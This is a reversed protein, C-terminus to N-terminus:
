VSFSVEIKERLSNETFQGTVVDVVNGDPDIFVTTPMGAGGFARFVEGNPDSALPYTVGTEAALREAAGKQDSQNVGLFQVDDKVDQFVKELDPMEAVCPPCWSAWFNMVLPKGEFQALTVTGGDFGEMEVAPAAAGLDAAGSVSVGGQSSRFLAFGVIGLAVLGIAGWQVRKLLAARRVRARVAAKASRARRAGERDRAV